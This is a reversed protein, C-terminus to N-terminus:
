CHGGKKGDLLSLFRHLLARTLPTVAELLFSKSASTPLHLRATGGRCSMLVDAGGGTEDAMSLVSEVDTWGCLWSLAPREKPPMLSPSGPVSTLATDEQSSPCQTAHSVHGWTKKKWNKRKCREFKNTFHCVSKNSTGCGLSSVNAWGMTIIICKVFICCICNTLCLYFSWM